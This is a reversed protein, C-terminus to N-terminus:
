SEKKAPKGSDAPRAKGDNVLTQAVGEDLDVTKDPDHTKGDADTFPYALTVRTM